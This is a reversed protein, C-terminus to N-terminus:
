KEGIQVIHVVEKVELPNLLVVPTNKVGDSLVDPVLGKISWCLNTPHSTPSDMYVLADPNQHSLAVTLEKVTMTTSYDPDPAVMDPIIDVLYCTGDYKRYYGGFLSCDRRFGHGQAAAWQEIEKLSEGIFTIPLDAVPTNDNVAGFDM